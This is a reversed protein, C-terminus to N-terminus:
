DIIDLARGRSGRHFKLVLFAIIIIIIAVSSQAGVAGPVATPAKNCRM